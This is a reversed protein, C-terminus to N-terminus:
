SETRAFGFLKPSKESGSKRKRGGESGSERSSCYRWRRLRSAMKSSPVKKALLFVGKNQGVHLLFSGFPRRDDM